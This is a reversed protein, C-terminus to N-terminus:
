PEYHMVKQLLQGAVGSANKKQCVSDLGEVQAPGRFLMGRYMASSASSASSCLVVGHVVTTGYKM